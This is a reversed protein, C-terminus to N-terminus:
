SVFLEAIGTYNNHYTFSTFTRGDPTPILVDPQLTTKMLICYKSTATSDGFETYGSRNRPMSVAIFSYCLLWQTHCTGFPFTVTAANSGWAGSM